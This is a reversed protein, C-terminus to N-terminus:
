AAASATGVRSQVGSRGAVSTSANTTDTAQGSDPNGSTAATSAVTATPNFSARSRRQGSPRRTRPSVGAARSAASAVPKTKVPSAIAPVWGIWGGAVDDRRRGAVGVDGNAVAVGM